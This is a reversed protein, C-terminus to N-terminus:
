SVVHLMGNYLVSHGKKHIIIILLHSVCHGKELIWKGIGSVLGRLQLILVDIFLWKCIIVIVVDIPFGDIRIVQGIQILAIM